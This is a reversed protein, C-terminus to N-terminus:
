FYGIKENRSVMLTEPVPVKEYPATTARDNGLPLNIRHDKMELLCYTKCPGKDCSGHKIMGGKYLQSVVPTTYTM